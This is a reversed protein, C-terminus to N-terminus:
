PLNRWEKPNLAEVRSEDKLRLRACVEGSEYIVEQVVATGAETEIEIGNALLRPPDDTVDKTVKEYYGIQKTNIKLLVKNM